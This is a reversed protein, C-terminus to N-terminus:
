RSAAKNLTLSAELLAVRTQAVAGNMKYHALLCFRSARFNVSMVLGLMTTGTWQNIM